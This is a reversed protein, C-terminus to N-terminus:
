LIAEQSVNRESLVRGGFVAEEADGVFNLISEIAVLWDNRELCCNIRM